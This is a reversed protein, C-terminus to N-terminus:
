DAHPNSKAVFERAHSNVEPLVQCPSETVKAAVASLLLKRFTQANGLRVEMAKLIALLVHRDPCNLSDGVPKAARDSPKTVVVATCGLPPLAIRLRITNERMLRTLLEARLSSRTPDVVVVM